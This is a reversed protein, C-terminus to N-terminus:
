SMGKFNRNASFTCAVCTHWTARAFAAVHHCTLVCTADDGM